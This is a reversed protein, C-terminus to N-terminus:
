ADFTSVGPVVAVRDQDAIKEGTEPAGGVRRASRDVARRRNHPRLGHDPAGEFGLPISLRASHPDCNTTPIVNALAPIHPQHAPDWLDFSGADYIVLASDLPGPWIPSARCGQQISGVSNPIGLTRALM